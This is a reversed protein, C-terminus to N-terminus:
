QRIVPVTRRYLRYYKEAMSEASFAREAKDRAAKSMKERLEKNERLLLCKEAFADPNRGEVLFGEVGNTIIEGIGGVAPAIVPIGRALAELISMPIGEHVSTNLYLDIGKYFTDMDDQHGKMAFSDQLRYRQVMSELVPRESGEGALEFHVDQGKASAITRAIEVMLPYDKVPFLRGSSGIVFDETSRRPLTVEPIEIGNHISEISEERFSYEKLLHNKVDASVAVTKTFHRSLLHFNGRSIARNAYTAKDGAGEPLGHQTAILKISGSFGAAMTALINEKYRHSHILDPPSTHMITRTKHVIEWFSLQREDIVHVTIGIKRLNEALRGENLLIIVLKLDPYGNLHTLLNFAMTEAGAWLDGSILHFVKLKAISANNM